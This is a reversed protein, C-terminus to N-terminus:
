TNEKIDDSYIYTFLTIDCNLRDRQGQKKQFDTNINVKGVNILQDGNILSELFQGISIFDGKVQVQVTYREIHSNDKILLTKIDPLTDELFPQQWIIQVDNNSATERIFDQVLAFSELSPVKKKLERFENILVGYNEKLQTYDKQKEVAIGVKKKLEVLDKENGSMKGGNLYAVQWM